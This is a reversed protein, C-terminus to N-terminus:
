YYLLKLWGFDLYLLKKLSFSLIILGAPMTTLRSNAQRHLEPVLAQGLGPEQAPEQVLGQGPVPARALEPM